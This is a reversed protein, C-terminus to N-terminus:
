RTKEYYSLDVVHDYAPLAQDWQGVAVFFDAIQKMFLQTGGGLWDPTLQEKKSLFRFRSLIRSADTQKIGAAQAIIPIARDPSERLYIAAKDTVELFRSVMQPRKKAFERNVTVLDFGRMGVQEMESATLLVKGHRLMRQLHRGRACAMAVEGRSLAGVAANPSLDLLRVQTADVNLHTLQRLLKYHSVSGYAVAVRQGELDAANSRTIGSRPSVVCNHNDLYAVAIGVAKIPVGNSVAMTFPVLGHSYAIQVEGAAMAESIQAGTEFARWQVAANMEKDYWREVQAVQSATPWHRLYAVTVQEIAHAPRLTGLLVIAMALSLAWAKWTIRM